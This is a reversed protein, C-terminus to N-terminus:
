AMSGQRYVRAIAQDYYTKSQNFNGNIQAMRGSEQAYLLGDNSSIEQAIDTLDVSAAPSNLQQKYPAIQSPYNVLISNFACGSLSFCLVVCSLIQHKHKLMNGIMIYGGNGAYSM